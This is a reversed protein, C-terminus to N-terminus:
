PFVGGLEERFAYIEESRIEMIGLQGDLVVLLSVSDNVHKGLSFILGGLLASELLSQELLFRFILHHLHGTVVERIRGVLIVHHGHSHAILTHLIGDRLIVVKHQATELQCRGGVRVVIEHLFEGLLNFGRTLIQADGGVANEGIRLHLKVLETALFSTGIGTEARNGSLLTLIEIHLTLLSYLLFKIEEQQLTLLFVGHKQGIGYRFTLDDVLGIHEPLREAHNEFTISRINKMM